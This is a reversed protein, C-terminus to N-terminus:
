SHYTCCWYSCCRMSRPLTLQYTDNGTAIFDCFEKGRDSTVAVLLEKQNEKPPEIEAVTYFKTAGEGYPRAQKLDREARTYRFHLLKISCWCQQINPEVWKAASVMKMSQTIKQINKVSKLRISIAKLTAMHRNQQAFVGNSIIANVAPNIRQMWMVSYYRREFQLFFCCMKSCWDSECVRIRIDRM